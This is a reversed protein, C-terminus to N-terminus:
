LYIRNNKFLINFNLPDKFKNLWSAETKCISLSLGRTSLTKSLTMCYTLRKQGKLWTVKDRLENGIVETLEPCSPDVLSNHTHHMSHVLHPFSLKEQLPKKPADTGWSVQHKNYLLFLIQSTDKTHYITLLFNKSSGPVFHYNPSLECLPFPFHKRERELYIHTYIYVCVCM